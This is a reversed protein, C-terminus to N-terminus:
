ALTHETRGEGLKIDIERQLRTTELLVRVRDIHPAREFSLNVCGDANPPGDFHVFGTPDIVQVWAGDAKRGRLGSAVVLLLTRPVAPTHRVGSIPASEPAKAAEGPSVPAIGELTRARKAM